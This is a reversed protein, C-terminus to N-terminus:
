QAPLSPEPGAAPPAHHARFLRGGETVLVVGLTIVGVVLYGALIPVTTGDYSQGIVIGILAAGITSVFGQISSATGAIHGVPEMAMSGFNSAALSFCAMTAAQLLAFSWITEHGTAAIALHIAAIVIFATLASHSVLRTGLREVIRSNLFAAVGMFAAMAAFVTTFLAAARFVDAFIQQASNIFGILGGFLLTSAITYGCSCRDRVVIRAADVIERPAIPRRDAPHLTEPLRLVAWALVGVGFLAFSHFIWTWPGVLLILQGITPALIPVALFVIFSLSMVRAMQRGSYRDRVISIALVRSGAAAIGQLVRALIITAFDHALVAAVSTAVFLGLSVILVPKRGYRDALPGYILQSAGFGLLYAAIIWQRQNESAIGLSEGMAPLAPLMADVGLATIAMLAAVFGVFERFGIAIAPADPARAPAKNM